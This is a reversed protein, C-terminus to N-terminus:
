FTELPLPLIILCSQLNSQVTKTLRFRIKLSEVPFKGKPIAEM